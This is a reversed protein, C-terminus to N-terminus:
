QPLITHVHYITNLMSIKKLTVMSVRFSLSAQYVASWPTVFLWVCSLSQVVFREWPYLESGNLLWLTTCGDDGDMEVVKENETTKIAIEM